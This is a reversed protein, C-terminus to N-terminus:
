AADASRRARLELVTRSSSSARLQAAVRVRTSGRDTPRRRARRGDRGASTSRRRLTSCDSRGVGLSRCDALHRRLRRPARVAGARAPRRGTRERGRDGAALRLRRNAAARDADDALRPHGSSAAKSAPRSCRPTTTSRPEGSRRTPSSCSSSSPPPSSSSGTSSRVSSADIHERVLARTGSWTCGASLTADDARSRTSTPTSRRRPTSSSTSAARRDSSSRRPAAPQRRRARESPQTVFDCTSMGRARRDEAADRGLPRAVEPGAAGHRPQRDRSAASGAGDTSRRCCRRSRRCRSCGGSRSRARSRRSASSRRRSRVCGARPWRRAALELEPELRRHGTLAELHEQWQEDGRRM